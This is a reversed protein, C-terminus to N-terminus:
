AKKFNIKRHRHFGIKFDSRISLSLRVRFGTLPDYAFLASGSWVGCLDPDLKNALLSEMLFLIFAVFLGSAGLIDFPSTWSIVTSSDVLICHSLANEEPHTEHEFMFDIGNVNKRLVNSSDYKRTM